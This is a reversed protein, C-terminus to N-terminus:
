ITTEVIHQGHIAALRDKTEIGKNCPFELRQKLLIKAEEKIRKEFPIDLRQKLVKKAKCQLCDIRKQFKKKDFPFDLRQNGMKKAKQQLCDM